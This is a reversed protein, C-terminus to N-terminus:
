GLGQGGEKSDDVLEDFVERAERMLLSQFFTLTSAHVPESFRVMGWLIAKPLATTSCVPALLLVPYYLELIWLTYHRNNARTAQNM